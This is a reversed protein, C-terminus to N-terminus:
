PALVRCGLTTNGGVGVGIAYVCITQPGSGVAPRAFSYGHASGLGFFAGVDGRIGDATVRTGVGNVYVDVPISASTEPDLAWGTVSVWGYGLGTADIVGIPAGDGVTITRCGLLGNNGPGATNIAYVCVQHSGPSAAITAAYGHDPGYAPFVAGVDPRSGNAAVATGVGDVYVHVQGPNSTDPDIVWGGVTVTGVGGRVVDSSGFPDHGLVTVTRCTLERNGGTGAIDIGYVCVRHAGPSAPITASFGHNDGYGPYAAGV